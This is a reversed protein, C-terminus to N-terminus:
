IKDIFDKIINLAVQMRYAKNSRQDDIPKILEQYQDLINPTMKKFSDVSLKKYMKEISRNRIVTMYVAGLAIRFDTIRGDEVTVAGAFSVKSIADALRGGVKVWSTKSFTTIPIVIEKILENNQIVTKRPGVIVKEIPLYRNQNVSSLVVLADLLYLAVLSDGAPSANAINGALTAMNRIGPSAMEKIVDKLLQPIDEHHLLTELSTMSGIRIQTEEKIVYKLEELNFLYIMNTNFLPPLDATNRKQIMLDTGGAIVHYDSTYLYNLAEQLNKPIVHKVM